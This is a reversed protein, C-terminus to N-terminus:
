VHVPRSLCYTKEINKPNEGQVKGTKPLRKPGKERSKVCFRFFEGSIGPSGTKGGSLRRGPPGGQPPGGPRRKRGPILLLLLRHPRRLRGGRHHPAPVARGAGHVRHQRDTRRHGPGPGDPGAPAPLRRAKGVAIASFVIGLVSFLFACVLGAVGWNFVSDVENQPIMQAPEAYVPQAYVPEPETPAYLPATPEPMDSLPAAKPGEPDPTLEPLVPVPAGCASCFHAGEPLATGCVNCNM